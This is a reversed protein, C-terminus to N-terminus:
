FWPWPLLERADVYLLKVLALRAAEFNKKIVLAKYEAATSSVAFVFEKSPLKLILVLLLAIKSQLSLLLWTRASRRRQDYTHSFLLCCKELSKQHAASHALSMSGALVRMILRYVLVSACKSSM